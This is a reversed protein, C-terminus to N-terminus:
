LIFSRETMSSKINTRLVNSMREPVYEVPQMTSSFFVDVELDKVCSTKNSVILAMFYFGLLLNGQVSGTKFQLSTM